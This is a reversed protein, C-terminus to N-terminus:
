YTEANDSLLDSDEYINGVVEVTCATLKILCDGQSVLRVGFMGDKFVVAVVEDKDVGVQKDFPLHAIVIDGEYIAVRNKDNLGTYQMLHFRHDSQNIGRYLISETPHLYWNKGYVGRYVMFGNGPVCNTQIWM